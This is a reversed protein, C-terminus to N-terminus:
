ANAAGKESYDWALIHPILESMLFYGLEVEFGYVKGFCYWDGDDQLDAEWVEYRWMNSLLIELTQLKEKGDTEGISPIGYLHDEFHLKGM